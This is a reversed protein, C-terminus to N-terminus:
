AQTKQGRQACRCAVRRIINSVEQRRRWTWATTEQVRDIASKTDARSGKELTVQIQIEERTLPVMEVWDGESNEKIGRNSQM